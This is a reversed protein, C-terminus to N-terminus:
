ERFGSEGMPQRKEKGREQVSMQVGARKELELGVGRSGDVAENEGYKM